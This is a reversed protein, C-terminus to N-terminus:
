TFYGVPRPPLTALTLPQPLDSPDRYVEGLPRLVPTQDPPRVPQSLTLRGFDDCVGAATLVQQVQRFQARVTRVDRGLDRALRALRRDRGAVAALLAELRGAGRPLPIEVAITRRGYQRPWNILLDDLPEFEFQVDAM